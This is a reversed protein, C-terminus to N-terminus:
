GVLVRYIDEAMRLGLLEHGKITPHINDPGTLVDCNGDGTPVSQKGTGRMFKPTRTQLPIHIAGLAACAEAIKAETGVDQGASIRGPSTNAGIIFILANEHISRADAIFQRVEDMFLASSYVTSDNHGCLLTVVDADLGQTAAVLQKRFSPFKGDPYPIVNGPLVVYTTDAFSSSGVGANILEFEGGFAGHMVEACSHTTAWASSADSITLDTFSDGFALWRLRPAAPFTLTSTVRTVITKPIYAQEFTLSIRRRAVTPFKFKIYHTVAASYFNFGAAGATLNAGSITPTVISEGVMIHMMTAAGGAASPLYFVDGDLVFSCYKPSTGQGWTQGPELATDTGANAGTAGTIKLKGPAVYHRSAGAALTLNPNYGRIINTKRYEKPVVGAHDIGFPYIIQTAPDPDAAPDSVSSITPIDNANILASRPWGRPGHVRAISQEVEYASILAKSTASRRSSTAVELWNIGDSIWSTDGRDSAIFIAGKYMVASPFDVFRMRPYDRWNLIAM